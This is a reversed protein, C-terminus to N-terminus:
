ALGLVVLPLLGLGLALFTWFLGARRHYNMVLPSWGIQLIGFLAAFLARHEPACATVTAAILPLLLAAMALAGKRSYPVFWRLFMHYPIIM